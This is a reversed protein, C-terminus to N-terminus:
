LDCTEGFNNEPRIPPPQCPSNDFMDRKVGNCYLFATYHAGPVVGIFTRNLCWGDVEAEFSIDISVGGTYNGNGGNNQLCGYHLAAFAGNYTASDNTYAFFSEPYQSTKWYLQGVPEALAMSPLLCQFMGLCGLLILLIQQLRM